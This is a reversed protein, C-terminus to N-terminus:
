HGGRRLAKWMVEGRLAKVEAKLKSVLCVLAKRAIGPGVPHLLFDQGIGFGFM